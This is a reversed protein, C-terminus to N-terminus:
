PLQDLRAQEAATLPASAVTPLGARRKLLWLGGALMAFPAFWLLLTAENFPPELLVWDGYRQVLFAKVEADSNGAAVRARIAQRLDAALDADSDAISQNQCVLCRVDQMISRARAEAKADPLTDADVGVAYAPLCLVLWLILMIHKIAVQPKFAICVSRTMGAFAPIWPSPMNFPRPNAVVTSGPKRRSSSYTKQLGARMM